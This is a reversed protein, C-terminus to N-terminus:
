VDSGYLNLQLASDRRRSDTIRGLEAEVGAALHAAFRPKVRPPAYHLDPPSPPSSYPDNRQLRNLPFVRAPEAEESIGELSCKKTSCTKNTVIPQKLTQGQLLLVLSQLPENVLVLFLERTPAVQRIWPPPDSPGM